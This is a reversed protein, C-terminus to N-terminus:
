INILELVPLEVQPLPFQPLKDKPEILHGNLLTQQVGNKIFSTM